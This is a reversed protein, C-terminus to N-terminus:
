LTPSHPAHTDEVGTRSDAGLEVAAIDLATLVVLAIALIILIEMLDTGKPEMQDSRSGASPLTALSKIYDVSDLM